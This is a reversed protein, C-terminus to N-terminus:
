AEAVIIAVFDGQFRAAIVGECEVIASVTINPALPARLVATSQSLAAVSVDMAKSLPIHTHLYNQLETLM